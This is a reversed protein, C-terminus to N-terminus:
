TAAQHLSFRMLAYRARYFKGHRIAQIQIATPVGWTPLWLAFLLVGLELPAQGPILALLAAILGSALVLITEAARGAVGPLELIRALNISLAVFVLGALAGTAGAAAVLFDTWGANGEM